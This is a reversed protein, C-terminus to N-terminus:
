NEGTPDTPTRESPRETESRPMTSDSAIKSGVPSKAGLLLLLQKAMSRAFSVRTAPRLREFYFPDTSNALEEVEKWFEGIGMKSPQPSCADQWAEQAEYLYWITDRGIEVASEIQEPSAFFRAEESDPHPHDPDFFALHLTKVRIGMEYLPDGARPAPAAGRKAYELAFDVTERTEGASLARMGVRVIPPEAGETPAVMLPMDIVTTARTGKIVQAFKM